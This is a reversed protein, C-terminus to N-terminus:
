EKLPIGQVRALTYVAAEAGRFDFGQVCAQIEELAHAPMQQALQALLPEVPTPDDADLAVLIARFMDKLNLEGAASAAAPPVIKAPVVPPVFRGIAYVADKIAEDLRALVHTPDYGASLVREAEGALRATEPLAMNAAAGMLKHALAAAASRDAIALSANMVAVAGGYSDVFRRLYGRYINVDSWLQLGQAVDMVNLIAPAPM